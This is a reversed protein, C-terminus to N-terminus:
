WEKFSLIFPRNDVQLPENKLYIRTGPMLIVEQEDRIASYQSIDKGNITEIAYLTGTQGLFPEIVKLDKSTSTVVWWTQIAYDGLNFNTREPIGRWVIGKFSPLKNLATIFLKLYLFWPRLAKKNMARLHRNLTSFINKPMTYLYIAASEDETLINTKRCQLKAETVYSTVDPVDHTISEVAKELTMISQDHYGYIPSSSEDDHIADSEDLFKNEM